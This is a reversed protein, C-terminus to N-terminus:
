NFGSDPTAQTKAKSALRLQPELGEVEFLPDLLRPEFKGGAVVGNTL